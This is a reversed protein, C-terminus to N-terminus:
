IFLKNNRIFLQSCVETEDLLFVPQVKHRSKVDGGSGVHYGDPTMTNNYSM